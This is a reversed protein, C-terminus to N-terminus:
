PPGVGLAKLNNYITGVYQLIEDSAFVGSCTTFPYVGVRLGEQHEAFIEGHCPAIAYDAADLLCKDLLSDGSAVMPENQVTRRVHEIAASKNVAEPVAYLKRGQLSAKWGLDNLKDALQSVVNPPLLDRHVVFTFFLGDCYRETLIWEERLASRVITRIEEAPASHLEVRKGVSARWEMDVKGDILINGGNSTVAYDPVVTEQFLNIRKYQEVTRTTVPMFVINGALSILQSLARESIYSVTTGNIIEAPVLGPSDEPVGIANRSYILTRDLDSAYIM